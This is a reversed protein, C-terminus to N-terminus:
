RGEAARFRESALFEEVKQVTEPTKNEGLLQWWPEVAGEAEAMMEDM